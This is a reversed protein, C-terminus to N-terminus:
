YEGRRRAREQKSGREQRPVMRTFIETIVQQAQARVQETQATLQEAQATLQALQENQQALQVVEHSVFCLRLWVLFTFGAIMRKIEQVYIPFMQAGFEETGEPATAGPMSWYMYWEAFFRCGAAIAVVIAIYYGKNLLMRCPNEIFAYGCATCFSLLLLIVHSFFELFFVPDMLNGAM